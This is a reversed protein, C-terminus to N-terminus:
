FQVSLHLQIVRGTQASTIKGFNADTLSTVPDGFRVINFPNQAEGRLTASVRETIDLRKSVALSESAQEPGRAWDLTRADTGMAYTGPISFAAPNLFLDKAPDFSGSYTAHIPQGLVYNGRKSGYGLISLNNSTTMSLADGSARRIIAVLTWGGAVRQALSRSTLFRRGKGFPLDYSASVTFVEPAGNSSISTDLIRNLPYQPTGEADTLNKMWTYFALLTLGNSYRKTIKVQLSNYHATGVGASQSVSTYQPFPMLAQAVTHTSYTSFTSFPSFVGAASAATSTISQTLTPGLALYKADVVDLPNNMVLHTSHSGLYSTELVLNNALQREISFTWSMIQPPRAYDPGIYTASQGNSFTPDIFPPRAYNQPFTGTDWNYLPSYGDPSSFSPTAQFGATQVSTSLSAPAYYIGGSARLVTKSDLGYAVALRPAIAKNFAPSFARSGIRGSGPGAFVLAGPIGGAGPNPTSPSFSSWINNVDFPSPYLEWRLGYSVTLKPTVKWEDQAFFSWYRWRRGTEVPSAMNAQNVNGLLFSAFANGYKAFNSGADPQSTTSNSFAFNGAGNSGSFQNNYERMYGIGYKTTHHGRVWTLNENFSYRGSATISYSSYGLGLPAATGGGFSIVPFSGDDWPFGTLGLKKDWNAGITESKTPNFYRDLGITLHSLLNPRLIYDHNIRGMQDHQQQDRFGELVPATQGWGQYNLQRPRRQDSYTVAVKQKDSLSHDFKITSVYTNLYPSTGTRNYWNNSQGALDPNPMLAIMQSSASSFRAKPIVNGPFPTRMYSGSADPVTTAPDYIPIVAGSADRLNSFDGSRFASTPITQLSGTGSQRMWFLDQGFFFFTRNRGNYVKPIYVPGGLTFGGENQRVRQRTAQFFSRADLKDNAFDNFASGHLQNTGSRITVSVFWNGTRGYEADFSNTVVSLEGIQEIGPGTEEIVNPYNVESGPAGDIFIESNGSASGNLIPSTSGPNAIGPISQLYGTINRKEGIQIMPLDQIFKTTVGTVLTPTALDLLPAAAAVDVSETVAGVALAFDVRARTQAQILIPERRAAHFGDKKVIVRYTGLPLNAAFYAGLDNSAFDFIHNTEVQVVQIQAQPVAAGSPDTITGEITGRDSQAFLSCLGGALAALFLVKRSNM